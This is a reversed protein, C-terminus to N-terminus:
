FLTSGSSRTRKRGKRKGKRGDFVSLRGRRETKACQLVGSGGTDVGRAGDLGEVAGSGAVVLGERAVDARRSDEMLCEVVEEM